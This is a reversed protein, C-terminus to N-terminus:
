DMQAQEEQEPVDVILMATGKDGESRQEYKVKWSISNRNVMDGSGRRQRM